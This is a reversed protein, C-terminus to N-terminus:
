KLKEIVKELTPVDACVSIRVYDNGNSGFIFGPTIFVGKEYLLKDSMREGLTKEAHYAAILPNDGRLRGWVFLGQAPRCEAGLMEMIRIAYQQRLKYEENLQRYWDEGQELAKVAALQMARFMGSDMQSKVKLLESIVDAAGAVMGIRWGSMNQAKSLSNLEICCDFAGPISLISLPKDNLVFSYPNDNCVLINHRRGFDVAKRYLEESAPAGTPMNPYNIWMLKVGSLDMKELAEFDPQFGLEPVLDYPLAEAQVMAAASAYTPYGPNPILVKDGANLFALCTILIGEKSGMLPQIQTEPDLETGYWKRYWAAFARRLEPIGKYSQYKHADPRRAEECLQEIVQAPPMRDPAGIGLNVIPDEGSAKRAANLAAIERNKVSFYYEKVSSVRDAPRIIM